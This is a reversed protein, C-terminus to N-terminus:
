AKLVTAERDVLDAITALHHDDHEAVFWALDVLRMQAGLRKHLATRAFAEAPANVILTVLVKRAKFFEVLLAATDRCNHEACETKRNSMDAPTLVTKGEILENVRTIWLPELDALHGVNEQISWCEQEQKTLVRKPVGEIRKALRAPMVRLRELVNPFVSDPLDFLFQRELWFM